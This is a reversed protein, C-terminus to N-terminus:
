GGELLGCCELATDQDECLRGCEPCTLSVYCEECLLRTYQTAIGGCGELGCPIMDCPNVEDGCAECAVQPEFDVMPTIAKAVGHVHGPNSSTAFGKFGRQDLSYTYFDDGEKNAVMFADMKRRDACGATGSSFIDKFEGNLIVAFNWEWLCGDYGGGQYQILVNDM